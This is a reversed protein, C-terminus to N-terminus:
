WSARGQVMGARGYNAFDSIGAPFWNRHKLSM